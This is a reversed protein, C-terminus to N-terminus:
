CLSVFFAIYKHQNPQFSQLDFHENVIDSTHPIINRFFFLFAGTASSTANHAGGTASSALLLSTQFLSYL